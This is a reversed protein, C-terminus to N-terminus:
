ISELPDSGKRPKANTSDEWVRLAKGCGESNERHKDKGRDFNINFSEHVDYRVHGEPGCDETM